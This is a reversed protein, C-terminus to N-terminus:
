KEKLLESNKALASAAIDYGNNDEDRLEIVAKYRCDCYSGHTQCFWREKDGYHEVAELLVKVQLKAATLEAQLSELAETICAKDVQSMDAFKVAQRSVSMVDLGKTVHLDKGPIKIDKM